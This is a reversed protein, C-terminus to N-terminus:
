AKPYTDASRTPTAKHTPPKYPPPDRLASGGTMIKRTLPCAGLQVAGWLPSPLDPTGVQVESRRLTPCASEHHKIPTAGPDTFCRAVSKAFHQVGGTSQVGDTLRYIPHVSRYRAEGSRSAHPDM